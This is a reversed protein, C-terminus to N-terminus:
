NAVFSSKSLSFRPSPVLNRVLVPFKAGPKGEETIWVKFRFLGDSPLNRFIVYRRTLDVERSGLERHWTLFRTGDAMLNNWKATLFLKGPQTYAKSLPTNPVGPYNWQIRVANAEGPIRSAVIHTSLLPAICLFELSSWDCRVKVNYEHQSHLFSYM